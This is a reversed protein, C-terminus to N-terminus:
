GAPGTCGRIDAAFNDALVTMRIDSRGIWAQEDALALEAAVRLRTGPADPADPEPETTVGSFWALDPGEVLVRPADLPRDFALTAEFDRRAGTGEIRCRASTLGVRGAPPPVAAEAAAVLAASEEPADPAIRASVTTEELVCIERCVGLTLDLRLEIPRAPNEAVLRLPFVVGEAYGLTELGFSEFQRPRPWLVEASALNRSGTWDFVPPVGAAGPSRWYTKWEPALDIVLGAMRGGAPEPRGAVLRAEAFSQGTSVIAQALAPTAALGLWLALAPLRLTRVQIMAWLLVPNEGGAGYRKRSKKRGGASRAMM